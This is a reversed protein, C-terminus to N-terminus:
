RKIDEPEKRTFLYFRNKKYAACVLTPDSTDKRLAPNESVESEQVPLFPPYNNYNLIHICPTIPTHKKSKGDEYNVQLFNSISYFLYSIRM